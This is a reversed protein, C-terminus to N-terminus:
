DSAAENYLPALTGEYVQPRCAAWDISFTVGKEDEFGKGWNASSSVQAPLDDNGLAIMNSTALDKFVVICQANNLLYAMGLANKTVKSFVAKGAFKIFKSGTSGACEGLLENMEQPSQVRIWYKGAKLTYNGALTVVEGPNAPNEIFDPFADIDNKLAIYVDTSVGAINCGAESDLSILPVAVDLINLQLGPVFSLAAGCGAVTAIVPGPPVQLSHAFVSGILVSLILFSLFSVIKSSKM